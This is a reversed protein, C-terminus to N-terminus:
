LSFNSQALIYCDCFVLVLVLISLFLYWFCSWSVVFAFMAHYSLVYMAIPVLTFFKKAPTNYEGADLLEWFTGQEDVEEFNDLAGKAWHM